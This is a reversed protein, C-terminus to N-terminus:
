QEYKLRERLSMLLNGLHNNGTWNKKDHIKPDSKFLGVGWYIDKPSAECLINNGTDILKNRLQDNQRFKYTIGFIMVEIKIDDWMFKNFGVITKGLYKQEAPDNTSLIKELAFSDHFLAAKMAQYYQEVCNYRIYNKDVFRSEYFNSLYDNRGYFPIIIPKNKDLM